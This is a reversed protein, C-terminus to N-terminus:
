RKKPKRLQVCMRVIGMALNFRRYHATDFRIQSFCVLDTPNSLPLLLIYYYHLACERFLLAAKQWICSATEATAKQRSAASAISRRPWSFVATSSTLLLLLVYGEGEYCVLTTVCALRRRVSQPRVSPRVPPLPRVSLMCYCARPAIRQKQLAALHNFHNFAMKLAPVLYQQLAIWFSVPSGQFPVQFPQQQVFHLKLGFLSAPPHM